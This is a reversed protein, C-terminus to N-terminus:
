KEEPPTILRSRPAVQKPMTLETYVDVFTQEARIHEQQYEKKWACFKTAIKQTEALRNILAKNEVELKTIKEMIGNSWEEISQVNEIQTNKLADISSRLTKIQDEQAKREDKVNAFDQKFSGGLKRINEDIQELSVITNPKKGFINM